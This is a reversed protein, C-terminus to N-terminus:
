PKIAVRGSYDVRNLLLSLKNEAIYEDVAQRAGDFHGYDDIVLVGGSVLRPYLHNLEHLTSRYYDTDLHLLAIKEPAQAPLTDEVFGPVLNFNNMPYGSRTLNRETIQRFNETVWVDRTLKEGNFSVDEIDDPFGDFTDFLYFPRDTTGRSKLLSAEFAVSGGKYVGCEVIAGEIGADEIYNVCNFLNYFREISLLSAGNWAEHLKWFLPIRLDHFSPHM